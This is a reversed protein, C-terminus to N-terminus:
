RLRNREPRRIQALEQVLRPVRQTNKGETFEGIPSGRELSQFVSRLSFLGCLKNIDRWVRIKSGEHPISQGGEHPISQGTAYLPTCSPAAHTSRVIGHALPAFNATVIDMMQHHVAFGNGGETAPSSDCLALKSGERRTESIM